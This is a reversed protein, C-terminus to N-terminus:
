LTVSLEWHGVKPNKPLWFKFPAKKLGRKFKTEETVALIETLKDQAFSTKGRKLKKRPPKM